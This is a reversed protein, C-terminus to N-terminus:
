HGLSRYSSLLSLSITLIEDKLALISESHLAGILIPHDILILEILVFIRPEVVWLGWHSLLHTQTLLSNECALPPIFVLRKEWIFYINTVRPLLPLLRSIKITHPSLSRGFEIEFDLRSFWALLVIKKQHLLPGFGGWQILKIFPLLEIMVVNSVMGIVRVWLGSEVWWHDFGLQRLWPWWWLFLHFLFHGLYNILNRLINEIVIDVIHVGVAITIHIYQYISIHWLFCETEVWKLFHDAWVNRLTILLRLLWQDCLVWRHHWCWGLLLQVFHLHNLFHLM